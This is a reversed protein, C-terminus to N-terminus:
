CLVNLLICHIFVSITYYKFGKHLKNITIKFIALSESTKIDVSLLNWIKNGEHRLSKLCYTTSNSKPIITITPNRLNYAIEKVEFLEQIYNLTMGTVAQYM